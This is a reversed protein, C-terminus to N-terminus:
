ALPLVVSKPDRSFHGSVFTFDSARIEFEKLPGHVFPDFYSCLINGTIEGYDDIKGSTSREWQGSNLPGTVSVQFLLRSRWGEGRSM